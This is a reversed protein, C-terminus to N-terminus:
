CGDINILGKVLGMMKQITLDDICTITPTALRGSNPDYNLFYYSELIDVYKTLLIVRTTCCGINEGYKDSKILNNSAWCTAVCKGQLVLNSIDDQLAM